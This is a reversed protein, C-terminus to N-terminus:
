RITSYRYCFIETVLIANCFYVGRNSYMQTVVVFLTQNQCFEVGLFCRKNANLSGFKPKTQWLLCYSRRSKHPWGLVCRNWTKTFLTMWLCGFTFQKPIVECFGSYSNSSQCIYSFNPVKIALLYRM